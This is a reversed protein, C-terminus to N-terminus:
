TKAVLEIININCVENVGHVHGHEDRHVSSHITRIHSAARKSTSTAASVQHRALPGVPRAVRQM